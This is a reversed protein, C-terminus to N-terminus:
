LKKEQKGSFEPQSVQFLLPPSHPWGTSKGQKLCSYMINFYHLFNKANQYNKKLSWLGSVNLGASEFLIGEISKV